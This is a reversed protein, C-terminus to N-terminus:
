FHIEPDFAIITAIKLKMKIYKFGRLCFTKKKTKKKPKNKKKELVPIVLVLVNPSFFRM